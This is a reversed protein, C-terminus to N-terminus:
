PETKDKPTLRRFAKRILHAALLLPPMRLWHSRVYLLWVAFARLRKMGKTSAPSLAPVILADMLVRIITRPSGDRAFEQVDDPIWTGLLRSSYRLLYFLTRGLGHLHARDLLDTWFQNDKGFHELLQHIDILERLGSRFEDNFLHVARHLVMDAPCLVKLLPNELEVADSFLAETNPKYRSTVPVITHHIDVVVRREPHWIPPIEHMWERYYREDYEEMRARQWGASLLAQEVSVIKDRPVMIDLDSLFRGRAPPLDAMLYAGGKLLIIPVEFQSLARVLRNVEFFINKQNHLAFVHSEELLTRAKAPIRSLIGRGELIAALKALLGNHRAIDLLGQWAKDDLEILSSPDRLALLLPNSDPVANM